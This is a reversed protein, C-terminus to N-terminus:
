LYFKGKLSFVKTDRRRYVPYGDEDVMTEAYFSKPYRKTCKGEITCPAYKVEKGCPGHLMYETVVKYGEPDNTPCPM